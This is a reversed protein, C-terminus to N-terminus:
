FSKLVYRNFDAYLVSKIVGQAQLLEFIQTRSYGQELLAQIFDKHPALELRLQAQQLKTLVM